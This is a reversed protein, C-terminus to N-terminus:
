HVPTDSPRKYPHIPMPMWAVPACDRERMGDYMTWGADPEWYGVGVNGLDDALIVLEEPHPPNEMKRWETHDIVNEM